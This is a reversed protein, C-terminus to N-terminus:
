PEYPMVKRDTTVIDTVKMASDPCDQHEDGATLLVTAAVAMFSTIKKMRMTM